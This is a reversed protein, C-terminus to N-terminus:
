PEVAAIASTDKETSDPSIRPNKPGFPAPLVVVIRIKDPYKGADLPVARM